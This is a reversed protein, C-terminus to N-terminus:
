SLDASSDVADPDHLPRNRTLLLSGVIGGILSAALVGLKSMTLLADDAFALGAVFLSM